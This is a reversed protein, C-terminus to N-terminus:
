ARDLAAAQRGPRDPLGGDPVQPGPAVAGRRHRHVPHWGPQSAGAGVDGGARGLPVRAGLQDPLGDSGRALEDAQGM